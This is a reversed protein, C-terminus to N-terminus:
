KGQDKVFHVKYHSSGSSKHNIDVTPSGDSTSKPRYVVRSGDPFVSIFGKGGEIKSIVGGKGLKDWFEKAVHGPQEVQLYRARGSTGPKGFRGGPSLAYKSALDKINAALNGSSATYGGGSGSGM